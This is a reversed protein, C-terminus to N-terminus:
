SDGTTSLYVGDPTIALDHPKGGVLRTGEKCFDRQTESVVEIPRRAIALYTEIKDSRALNGRAALIAFAGFIAYAAANFMIPDGNNYIIMGGPEHLHAHVQLRYQAERHTPSPPADAITHYTERSLHIGDSNVTSYTTDIFNSILFLEPIWYNEIYEYATLHIGIGTSVAQAFRMKAFAKNLQETLSQAFEEASSYRDANNAREQLWDFTSWKYASCKALGWYTIAGRWRRVAIIKSQKWEMPKHNGDMQLETILSDSAHVTCYRTIVTSIVTM